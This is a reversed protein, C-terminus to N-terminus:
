VYQCVRERCSARGIEMRQQYRGSLIAARSPACTHHTAYGNSFRIGSSALSDIYPTNVDVLHPYCSLDGYGQDDVIILIVNPKTTFERAGSCGTGTDTLLLVLGYVYKTTM